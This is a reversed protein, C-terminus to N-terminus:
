ICMHFECWCCMVQTPVVPLLHIAVDATTALTASTAFIAQMSFKSQVSYSVTGIRQRPALTSYAGDVLADYAKFVIDYERNAPSGNGLLEGQYSFGSGVLESSQVATFNIGFALIMALIMKNNTKM